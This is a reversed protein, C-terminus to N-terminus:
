AALDRVAEQESRAADVLALVLRRQAPTLDGLRVTRTGPPGWRKEAGRKGAEVLVPNKDSMLSGVEM